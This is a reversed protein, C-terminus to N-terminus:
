ESLLSIVKATLGHSILMQLDDRNESLIGLSKLVLLVRSSGSGCLDQFLCCAKNLLKWLVSM